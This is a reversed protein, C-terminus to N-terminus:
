RERKDTSGSQVCTKFVQLTRKELQFRFSFFSRPHKAKRAYEAFCLRVQLACSLLFTEISFFLESFYRNHEFDHNVLGM